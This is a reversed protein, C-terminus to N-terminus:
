IIYWSIALVMSSIVNVKDFLKGAGIRYDFLGRLKIKFPWLMGPDSEKYDDKSHSIHDLLLHSNIGLFLPFCYLAPLWAIYSHYSNNLYIFFKSQNKLPIEGKMLDIIYMLILPFDPLISGFIVTMQYDTNDPFFMKAAVAGVLLHTYTQM